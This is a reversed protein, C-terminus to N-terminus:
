EKIDKSNFLAAKTLTGLAITHWLNFDAMGNLPKNPLGIEFKMIRNIFIGGGMLLWVVGLVGQPWYM